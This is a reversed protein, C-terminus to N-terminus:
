SARGTKRIPVAPEVDAGRWRLAEPHALKAPASVGSCLGDPRGDMALRSFDLLGTLRNIRPLRARAVRHLVWAAVGDPDATMSWMGRVRVAPGYTRKGGGTQGGELDLGAAALGAAHTAVVANYAATADLLGVLAAQASEAAAAVKGKAADLEKGAQGIQKAADKELAGRDAAAREADMQQTYAQRLERASAALQAASKSKETLTLAALESYPSESLKREAETRERGAAEARDEEATVQEITIM